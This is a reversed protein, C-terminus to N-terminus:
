TKSVANLLLLSQYSNLATMLALELQQDGRCSPILQVLNPYISVLHAYLPSNTGGLAELSGAKKGGSHHKTALGDILTSVARLVSITEFIREQPLRFHGSSTEDRAYDNLVQRCRSLLSSIASEGLTSAISPNNATTTPRLLDPGGGGQSGTM